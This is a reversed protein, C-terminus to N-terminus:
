FGQEDKIHVLYKSGFSWTGIVGRPFEYFDKKEYTMLCITTLKLYLNYMRAKEIRINTYTSLSSGETIRQFTRYWAMMVNKNAYM